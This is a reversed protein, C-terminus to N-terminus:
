KNLSDARLRDFFDFCLINSFKAFATCGESDDQAFGVILYQRRLRVRGLRPYDLMLKCIEMNEYIKKSLSLLRSM